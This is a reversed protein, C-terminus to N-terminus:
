KECGGSSKAPKAESSCDSAKKEHTCDGSKTAEKSKTAKKKPDDDQHTIVTLATNDSAFAPVSVGGIFLALAIIALTKKM